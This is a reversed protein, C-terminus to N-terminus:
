VNILSNLNLVMTVDEYGWRRIYVDATIVLAQTGTGTIKANEIDIMTGGNDAPVSNTWDSATQDLNSFIPNRVVTFNSGHSATYKIKFHRKLRNKHTVPRGAKGLHSVNSAVLTWAESEEARLTLVPDIYQKITYTPSTTPVTSGYTTGDVPYFNVHYEDSRGIEILTDDSLVVNSDTVFETANTISDVRVETYRSIQKHFVRDKEMIGATSEVPVIKSTSVGSTLQTRNIIIGPAPINYHKVGNLGIEGTLMPIVEGTNPNIHTEDGDMLLSSGDSKRICTFKFKAGPTGYVSIPINGGLRGINKTSVNIHNITYTKLPIKKITTAIKLQMRNDINWKRKGGKYVLYFYYTKAYGDSDRYIARPRLVMSDNSNQQKLYPKKTFYYGSRAKVRVRSLTSAKNAKVRAQIRWKKLKGLEETKSIHFRSRRGKLRTKPVSTTRKAM